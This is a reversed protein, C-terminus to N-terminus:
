GYRVEEMWEPNHSKDGMRIKLDKMRRGIEASSLGTYCQQCRHHHNGLPEEIVQCDRRGCESCFGHEHIECGGTTERLDMAEIIQKPIPFKDCNDLCRQGARVIDKTSYRKLAQYYAAVKQDLTGGRITWISSFLTLMGEVAEMKEQNM